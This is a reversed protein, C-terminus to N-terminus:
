GGKEFFCAIKTQHPHQIVGYETIIATILSAPTIDFSPNQVGVGPPTLAIGQLHTIEEAGREEVVIEKGSSITFDFTSFPAAVYFPINHWKALVALTYTGIKNATDGSAAIRDAGVIICDIQGRSLFYGAASDVIVTVPIGDQQLEWATLRAGQLFPRTEDAFVHIDKGAAVASRIVGLATGYGATALAGANCHTLVCCRNPLLSAGHEGILKNVALDAEYMKQATEELRLLAEAPPLAAITKASQLMQEVGWSLNVATPRIKKLNAGIEVLNDWYIDWNFPEGKKESSLLLTRAALFVAFAAAIGIAPAGRVAMNRIAQAVESGDCCKIYHENYPLKRQDLVLLSNGDWILPRIERV